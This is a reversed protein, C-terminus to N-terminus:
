GELHDGSRPQSFDSSGLPFHEWTHGIEWFGRPPLLFHSSHLLPLLLALICTPVCHLVDSDWCDASGAVKSAEWVRLFSM